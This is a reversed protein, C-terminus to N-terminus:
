KAAVADRDFPVAQRGSTINASLEAASKTRRKLVLVACSYLISYLALIGSDMAKQFMLRRRQGDPSHVEAALRPFVRKQPM